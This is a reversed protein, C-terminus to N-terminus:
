EDVEVLRMLRQGLQHLSHAASEVQRSSAVNQVSGQKINEMALAVQDMGVLQQQSSAAIQTAAQAAESISESLQRISDGAQASQRVGIEVAKSGQETTMVAATTAKQIDTLIGRVQGTAQKSQEALSKVEQAVVGFGKGHEGARAAEIAANVALLNSQEALDNVTAIIEGIAQSYESLRVISQAIAGMQERIGEMAQTSDQVSQSGVLSVQAARQASESVHRAKQASVQATQKVEQVTTTTQSLATATEAAGAAVQSTAALIESTATGLITVGDRIQGTMEQLNAIMRRTELGYLWAVTALLYLLTAPVLVPGLWAPTNGSSQPMPSLLVMVVTAATGLTALAFPASPRMLSASHVVAVGLFYPATSNLSPNLLMSISILFSYGLLFGWGALLVYGLRNLAFSLVSTLLLGGVIAISQTPADYLISLVLFLLMVLGMGASISANIRSKTQMEARHPGNPEPQTPNM